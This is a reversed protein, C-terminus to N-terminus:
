RFSAFEKTTAGPRIQVAVERNRGSPPHVMRLRHTGASLALGLVPSQQPLEKGDVFVKCWPACSVDLYGPSLKRQPEFQAQVKLREGSALTIKREFNQRGSLQVQLTYEGAPLELSRASGQDAGNLLVRAKEPADVELLAKEQKLELVLSKSEGAALTVVERASQYGALRVQVDVSGPALNEVRVPSTGPVLRGGVEVSAGKPLTHVELSIKAVPVPQAPIAPGVVAANAPPAERGAVIRAVIVAIIAAVFVSGVLAATVQNFPVLERWVVAETKETRDPVKPLSEKTPKPKAKPQSPKSPKAKKAPESKPLEPEAYITPAESPLVVAPSGEAPSKDLARTLNDGDLVVDIADIEPLDEHEGTKVGPFSEEKNRHPTPFSSTNTHVAARRRAQEPGFLELMFEDIRPLPGVMLKEIDRRLEQASQYRKSRDRELAKLVIRDIEPSVEPRKESPPPIQGQLVAFSTLLETERRFLRRGTLMEHFVVGLSFVDSRRDLKDSRLQEPSCYPVKGKVVGAQTAEQKRDTARAIGFDVVKVGGQYTLVINTPSIDRHVVNLCAGKDEFSHAYHLGDCVSAIVHLTLPVPLPKGEGYTKKFVTTLNEGALYEMALFYRGDIEGYDFVQVVNPHSLRSVIRAEDMFMTIFERQRNLHPLMRKVAVLKRFDDSGVQEALFIEAMGGEAILHRLVYRGFQTPKMTTATAM